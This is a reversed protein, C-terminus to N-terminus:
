RVKGARSSGAGLGTAMGSRVGADLRRGALAMDALLNEMLLQPNLNRELGEMARGVMAWVELLWQRRIRSGRGAGGEGQAGGLGDLILERIVSRLVELRAMAEQRSSAWAGARELIGAAPLEQISSLLEQAQERWLAVPEEKLLLARGISGQAMLAAKRAEQPDWGVREELYASIQGTELPGFWLRQCRSVVTPLLSAESNALLVMVTGQPPEELIKLLANSAQPNLKQAEQIIVVRHAGELPRYILRRQLERIQDVLIQAGQAEVLIVDPHVGERVKRCAQCQDCSDDVLTRCQLAKAFEWATASKGVGQPGVFLYAHALRGTGLARRLIGVARSHGV